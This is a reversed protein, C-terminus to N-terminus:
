AARERGGIKWRKPKRQRKAVCEAEAPDVSLHRYQLWATLLPMLVTQRRTPDGEHTLRHGRHPLKPPDPTALIQEYLALLDTM